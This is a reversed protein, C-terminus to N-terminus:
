AASLSRLAIVASSDAQQLDQAGDAYLLGIERQPGFGELRTRTVGPDRYSDPMVTIGLGSRVMALVKDDNQSRFSFEPRVGRETFHRSTDALVECHRRVIMVEEALDEAQIEEAAALRHWQPLALSYSERFLTEKRFRGPEGRLITLALDLRGRDLRGLLDRESGEVIELRDPLAHARNREVVQEMLGTPVTSLVGLRVLRSQALGRVKREALNFQHEITRAHELLRVGAETLHVRQSNRFFLRAGAARELKAIGVSLTPQTVNVREAARSFNGAEVVALFYRLQYRDIM